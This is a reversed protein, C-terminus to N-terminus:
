KDTNTRIDSAHLTETQKMTYGYGLARTKAVVNVKSIILPYKTIHLRALGKFFLIKIKSFITGNDSIFPTGFM